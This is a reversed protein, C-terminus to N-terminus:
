EELKCGTRPEEAHDGAPTAADDDPHYDAPTATRSLLVALLVLGAGAAGQPGLTEGLLLYSFGAGYVPDLAYIIAADPASVERQGVTQLWNAFVTTVLSLYLLPVAQERLPGALAGLSEGSLALSGM